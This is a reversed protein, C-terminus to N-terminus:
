HMQARMSRRRLRLEVRLTLRDVAVTLPGRHVGADLTVTDGPKAAALAQQATAFTQRGSPSELHAQPDGAAPKAGVALMGCTIAFIFFRCM